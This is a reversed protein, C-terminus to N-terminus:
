LPIGSHEKGFGGLALLERTTIDYNRTERYDAM